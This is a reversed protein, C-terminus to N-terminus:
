RVSISTGRGTWQPPVTNKEFIGFVTSGSGSMAAYVAGQQYLSDKIDKIEPYQQFVPAEFDNVLLEKWRSIPGTVIQKLDPAASVPVKNISDLYSFAWGTNISIDCNVLFFSYTSLDLTVPELIEGRGTAYCCKNIIFFPCDSGLRSAYNILQVQSLNLSYLRNLLRLTFAGDASGGGLGAGMPISKLLHMKTSPIMPYDRQLLYFSKVCLNNTPDGDVPFGSLTFDVTSINSVSDVSPIVELADKVALPYFITQLNHYGDPRKDLISLGLNIKCNPFVIM